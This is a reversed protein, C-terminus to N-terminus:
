EGREHELRALRNRLRVIERRQARQKSLLRLVGGGMSLTLIISVSFSFVFSTHKGALAHAIPIVAQLPIWCSAISIPILVFKALEYRQATRHAELRAETDSLGRRKPLPPDHEEAAV